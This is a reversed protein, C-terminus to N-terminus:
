LDVVKSVPRNYMRVYREFKEEGPFTYHVVGKETIYAVSAVNGLTDCFEIFAADKVNFLKGSKTRLKICSM